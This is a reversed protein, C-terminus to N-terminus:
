YGQTKYCVFMISTSPPPIIIIVGMLITLWKSAINLSDRFELESMFQLRFLCVTLVKIIVQSYRLKETTIQPGWAPAATKAARWDLRFVSPSKITKRQVGLSQVLRDLLIGWGVWHGVKYFRQFSVEQIKM